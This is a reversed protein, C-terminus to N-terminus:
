VWLAMWRGMLGTATLIGVVILLTGSIKQIVGYHAKVWGFVKSLRTVLLASLVFPIGLGLSYTLLLLVGLGASGSSAALALASGLFAGVCPLVTLPYILGFLFASLVGEVRIRAARGPGEPLHLVGLVNLGFLIMVAGCILNVPTRYRTLLFSIQASLLGMGVFVATFGAVFALVRLVSSGKRQANGAFFSLYVPLLPLLCPSLFSLIGELFTVLFSM